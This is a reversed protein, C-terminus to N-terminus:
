KINYKKQFYKKKDKKSLLKTNDGIQFAKTKYEDINKIVKAPIGVAVSNSQIDRTVLASAGIIVNDGITVGPLIVAGYGIYVNNGISITKVIDIQPNIDRFCWIGGDHTEFHVSTASVHNGIKILYPETSYKINILRCNLGIRVGILRGYSIPFIKGYTIEIVKELIKQVKYIM